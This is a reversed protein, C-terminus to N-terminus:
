CKKFQSSDCYRATRSYDGARSFINGDEPYNVYFQYHRFNWPGLVHSQTCEMQGSGMWWICPHREIFPQFLIGADGCDGTSFLLGWCFLDGAVPVVRAERLMISQDTVLDIFRRTQEPSLLGGANLDTTDVAKMLLENTSM